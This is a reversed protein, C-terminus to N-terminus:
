WILIYNWRRVIGIFVTIMDGLQLAHRARINMTVHVPFMRIM